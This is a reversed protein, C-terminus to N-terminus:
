ERGSRGAWARTAAYIALLLLTGSIAGVGDALVDAVSATRGPVFSQHVEDIVGYGASLAISTAAVQNMSQRTTFWWARTWLAGLLAYALVHALKDDVEPGLMRPQSSFWWLVGSYVVPPTFM